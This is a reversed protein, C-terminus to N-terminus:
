VSDLHWVTRNSGYIPSKGTKETFFPQIKMQGKTERLVLCTRLKKESNLINRSEGICICPIETKSKNNKQWYNISICNIKSALSLNAIQNKDQNAESIM